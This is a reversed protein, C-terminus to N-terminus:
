QVRQPYSTTERKPAPIVEKGILFCGGQSACVRWVVPAAFDSETELVDWM